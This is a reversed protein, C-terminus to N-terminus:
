SPIAKDAEFRQTAADKDVFPAVLKLTLEDLLRLKDLPIYKSSDINTIYFSAKRMEQRATTEWSQAILLPCQGEPATFGENIFAARYKTEYDSFDEKSMLYTHDPNFIRKKKNGTKSQDEYFRFANLIKKQIELLPHEITQAYAMTAFVTEVAEILEAKPKFSKNKM